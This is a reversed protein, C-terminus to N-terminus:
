NNDRGTEQEERAIRQFQPLVDTALVFRVAAKVGEPSNKKKKKKILNIVDM